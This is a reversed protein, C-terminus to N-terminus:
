ANSSRRSLARRTRGRSVWCRNWSSYQFALCPVAASGVCCAPVVACGQCLQVGELSRAEVSGPCLM